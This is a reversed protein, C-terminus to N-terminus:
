DEAILMLRSFYISSSASYSSGDLRYQTARMCQAYIYATGTYGSLDVTTSSNLSINKNTNDLHLYANYTCDAGGNQGESKHHSATVSLSKYTSIDFSASTATATGNSSADFSLPNRSSIGANKFTWKDSLHSLLNLQAPFLNNLVNCIDDWTSDATLGQNTYQMAEIISSRYWEANQITGINTAMTEFTADSTTTVGQDTIASAVLAKGDSVSQFLIRGQNASLPLTTETSELNDVVDAFGLAGLNTRADKETTAGTGGRNVPLTDFLIDSKKIQKISDNQNIFLSDNDNLLEAFGVDTIRKKSM